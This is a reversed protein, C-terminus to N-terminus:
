VNSGPSSEVLKAIDLRVQSSPWLTRLRAVRQYAKKRAEGFTEGDSVIVFVRGKGTSIQNENALKISSAFVVTDDEEELDTFSVLSPEDAAEGYPYSPSAMVVSVSPRLKAPQFEYKILGLKSLIMSLWDRGDAWALVECEPDGFRVNFEVVQPGSVGWMLGVYLVGVYEIGRSKLEKLLPLVVKNEVIKGADEPLWPVPAYCGMGGTNPGLDDDLLRKHDVAFCLESPGDAGILSFYSCERGELVTEVVVESAAEKMSGFLRELGTQIEDQTRCVFVGKGAALGSAKLVAGGTRSLMALSVARCEEESRTVIYEATPIHAAGMVEKAFSKSSELAAAAKKPGFVPFGALHDALGEALPQEPGCVVANIELRLVEARLDEFSATPPLNLPMGIRRSLPHGPWVYLATLSASKSFKWALAHERAGSGILLIKM